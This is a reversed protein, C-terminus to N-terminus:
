SRGPHNKMSKLWGLAGTRYSGTEERVLRALAPVARRGQGLVYLARAAELRVAPKPDDLAAVITQIAAQAEASGPKVIRELSFLATERVSASQDKVLGVLAAVVQATHEGNGSLALAARARVQADPDNIAALLVRYAEEREWPALFTANALASVAGIRTM